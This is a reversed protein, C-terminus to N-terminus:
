FLHKEVMFKELWAKRQELKSETKNHGNEWSALYASASRGRGFQQGQSVSFLLNNKSNNSIMFYEGNKQGSFQNNSSHGVFENENGFGLSKQLTYYPSSYGSSCFASLNRAHGSYPSKKINSLSPKNNGFSLSRNETIERSKRAQGLMSSLKTDLEQVTAPLLLPSRILRIGNNQQNIITENSNLLKKQLTQQVLTAKLSEQQKALEKILTEVERFSVDSKEAKCQNVKEIKERQVRQIDLENLDLQRQIRSIPSLDRMNLKRSSGREAMRDTDIEATKRIPSESSGFAKAILQDIKNDSISRFRKLNEKSASDTISVSATDFDTQQLIESEVEKTYQRGNYRETEINTIVQQTPTAPTQPLSKSAFNQPCIPSNMSNMRIKNKEAAMASSIGREIQVLAEKEVFVRNRLIELDREMRSVERKENEVHEKRTTLQQEVEMLIKLEQEKEGTYLNTKLDEVKRTYERELQAILKTHNSTIRNKQEEFDKTANLKISELEIERLQKLALESKLLEASHELKLKNLIENNESDLKTKLISERQKLDNEVEARSKESHSKELSIRQQCSERIELIKLETEKEIERRASELKRQNLQKFEALELEFKRNCADQENEFKIRDIESMTKLTESITSEQTKKLTDKLSALHQHHRQQIDLVETDYKEKEMRELDVARSIYKAKIDSQLAEFKRTEERELANIKEFTTKSITAALTEFRRTEFAEFDSVKESTRLRVSDEFTEYKRAEDNEIEAQKARYNSKLKDEFEQFRCREAEELATIQTSYQEQVKKRHLEIKKSEETNIHTLTEQLTKASATKQKEIELEHQSAINELAQAHKTRISVLITEYDTEIAHKETSFKEQLNQLIEANETVRTMSFQDNSNLFTPIQEDKNLKSLSPSTQPERGTNKQLKATPKKFSSEISTDDFNVPSDSAFSIQHSGKTQASVRSSTPIDNIKIQLSLGESSASDIDSHQQRPQETVVLHLKSDSLNEADNKPPVKQPPKEQSTLNRESTMPSSSRSPKTKQSPVEPPMKNIAPKPFLEFLSAPNLKGTSKTVAVNKSATKKKNNLSPLTLSLPEDDDDYDDDDDDDFDSVEEINDNRNKTVSQSKSMRDVESGTKDSEDDDSLKNLARSIPDTEHKISELLSPKARDMSSKSNDNESNSSESEPSDLSVKLSHISPINELVANSRKTGTALIESSQSLDPIANASKEFSVKATVPDQLGSYKTAAAATATPTKKHIPTFFNDDDEEAESEEIDEMELLKTSLLPIKSPNSATTATGILTSKIGGLTSSSPIFSSKVPIINSAIPENSLPNLMKSPTKISSLPQLPTLSKSAIQKLSSSASVLKTFKSEGASDNGHIKSDTKSTGRSSLDGSSSKSLSKTAKTPRETAKEPKSKSEMAKKKEREYLQRYHEDCPHDWISEGTCPKWDVPLPAKLSERAIWFLHKDEEEDMGLFKAYELVEEDTPEYNEDFEEELIIQGGPASM